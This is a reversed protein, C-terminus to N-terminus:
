AKMPGPKGDDPPLYTQPSSQMEKMEDKSTNGSFEKSTAAM